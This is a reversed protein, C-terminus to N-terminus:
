NRRTKDNWSSVRDTAIYRVVTTRRDNSAFDGYVRPTKSWGVQEYGITTAFGPNKFFLLNPDTLQAGFFDLLLSRGRNHNIPFAELLFIHTHPPVGVLKATQKIDSLRRHRLHQVDKDFVTCKTWPPWGTWPPWWAAPHAGYGVETWQGVFSSFLEYLDIKNIIWNSFILESKLEIEAWLRVRYM